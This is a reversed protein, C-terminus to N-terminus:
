RIDELFSFRDEEKSANCGKEEKEHNDVEGINRSGEEGEEKEEKPKTCTGEEEGKGHDIFNIGKRNRNCSKGKHIGTIGKETCEGVREDAEEDINIVGSNVEEESLVKFIGEEAEREVEDNGDKKEEKNFFCVTFM